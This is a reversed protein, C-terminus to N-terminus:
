ESFRSKIEDARFYRSDALASKERTQIMGYYKLLMAAWSGRRKLAAISHASYTEGYEEHKVSCNIAFVEEDNECLFLDSYSDGEMGWWTRETLRFRIDGEQFEVSKEDKKAAGSIGTLGLKNWDSFDPRQSWAPYHEIAQWMAILAKDLENTRAFQSLREKLKVDNSFRADLAREHQQLTGEVEADMRAKAEGVQRLFPDPDSTSDPPSSAPPGPLTHRQSDRGQKRLLWLAALVVLALLLVSDLSM